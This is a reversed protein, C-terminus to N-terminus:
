LQVKNREAYSRVSEEGDYVPLWERLRPDSGSTIMETGDVDCPVPNNFPSNEPTAKYVKVNFARVYSSGCLPDRLDKNVLMNIHVLDFGKQAGHFEPMWWQHECNITGPRIGYYLDVVQRIKGRPSEIWVWDGQKVGLREADAPNIEVRPVPWLERCWPLQRHESHFYVPIRRGTTCIFPYEDAYGEQVNPGEPPETYTPLTFPGITETLYEGDLEDPRSYYPIDEGFFPKEVSHYTEIRTNWIEQKRTPTGLGPPGYTTPVNPDTSQKFLKVGTEYRRYCGWADPQMVKMDQVGQEQYYNKWKEWWNEGPYDKIWYEYAKATESLEAIADPWIKDEETEDKNWKVGMHKCLQIIIDLDFWTEALPEVAKCTSGEIGSSGQSTRPSDVELWHRVPLLIDALQSTPTHWLDLVMFFDLQKLGNWGHQINSMNMVDGSQCIGGYLPYEARESRNCADWIATADGWRLEPLM